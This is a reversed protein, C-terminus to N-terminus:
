TTSALLREYEEADMGPADTEPQTGSEFDPDDTVAERQGIPAITRETKEIEPM